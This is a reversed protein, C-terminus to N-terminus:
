RTSSVLARPRNRDIEIGQDFADGALRASVDIAREIKAKGRTQGERSEGVNAPIFSCRCNPHRPIMGTAESLKLVVGEM